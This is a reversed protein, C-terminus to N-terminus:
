KPQLRRRKLLDKRWNERTEGPVGRLKLMKRDINENHRSNRRGHVQMTFDKYSPDGRRLRKSLEKQYGARLNERRSDWNKRWLQRSRARPDNGNIDALVQFRNSLSHSFEKQQAPTKLKSINFRPNGRLGSKKMRTSQIMAKLKGIVLTHDSGVDASRYARVDQLTRRWRRSITFHDIQNETREDPSSWTM